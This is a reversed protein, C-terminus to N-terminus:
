RLRRVTICGINNAFRAHKLRHHTNATFRYKFNDKSTRSCNTFSLSRIFINGAATRHDVTCSDHSGDGYLANSSQSVSTGPRTSAYVGKATFLDPISSVNLCRYCWFFCLLTVSCILHGGLKLRCSPPCVLPTPPLTFHLPVPHPQPQHAGTPALSSSM